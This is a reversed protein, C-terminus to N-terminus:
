FLSPKGMLKAQYVDQARKFNNKEKLGTQSRSTQLSIVESEPTQPSQKTTNKPKLLMWKSVHSKLSLNSESSTIDLTLRFDCLPAGPLQKQRM